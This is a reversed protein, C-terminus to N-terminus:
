THAEKSAPISASTFRMSAAPVGHISATPLGEDLVVLYRRAQGIMVAHVERPLTGAERARRVTKASVNLLAAIQTESLGVVTCTDMAQKQGAARM